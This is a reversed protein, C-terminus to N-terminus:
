KYDEFIKDIVDMQSPVVPPLYRKQDKEPLTRIASSSLHAYMPDCPIYMWNLKSKANGRACWQELVYKQLNEEYQLDYGNRIGRIVTIDELKFTELYDTLLGDYIDVYNYPLYPILNTRNQEKEPNQGVAIVLRDFLKEARKIINMHGLHLPNFSGAYVGVKYKRTVKRCLYDFVDDSIFGRMRAKDLFETRSLKYGNIPFIQYEKQIGDEWADLLQAIDASFPAKDPLRMWDEKVFEKESPSLRTNYPDATARIYSEVQKVTCSDFRRRKAYRRWIQISQEENSWAQGDYRPDYFIDHFLIALLRTTPLKGKSGKWATIRNIMNIIHKKGHWHRGESEYQTDVLEKLLRDNIFETDKLYPYIFM